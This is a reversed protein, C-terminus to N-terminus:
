FNIKSLVHCNFQSFQGKSIQKFWSLNTPWILVSSPQTLTSPVTLFVKFPPPVSFLPPCVFIKFLPCAPDLTPHRLFSPSSDGWWSHWYYFSFWSSFVFFTHYFRPQFPPILLLLWGFTNQLYTNRFFHAFSVPFYKHKLKKQISNWAKLGVVKVM